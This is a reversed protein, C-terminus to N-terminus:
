YTALWLGWSILLLGTLRASSESKFFLKELLVYVAIIMVWLLNMVGVVFLVLMLAWCCGICYAGHRLGMQWAGQAGEHWRTMLFALPSRCHHLCVRKLPSWQYMGAVILVTGGLLPSAASQMATLLRVSHLGWQALTAVLSFATWLALYGCVFLGSHFQRGQSQNLKAYLLITPMASPLMMAAMMVAWMIFAMAVDMATWPQLSPAAMQAMSMPQMSAHLYYLYIWAAATIFALAVMLARSGM